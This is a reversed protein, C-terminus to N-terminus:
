NGMGILISGPLPKRLHFVVHLGFMAARPNSDNRESAGTLGVHRTFADKM